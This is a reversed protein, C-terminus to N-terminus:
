SIRIRNAMMPLLALDDISQETIHGRTNFIFQSSLVLALAFLKEEVECSMGSQDDGLGQCDLLIGETEDSLELMQNWMWIGRTGNGMPVRIRFAQIKGVIQNSLFSKGTNFPGSVAIVAIKKRRQMQDLMTMAESSIELEDADNVIVFPIAKGNSSEQMTQDYYEQITVDETSNFRELEEQLNNETDIM